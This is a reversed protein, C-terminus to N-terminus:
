RDKKFMYLSLCLQAKNDDTLTKSEDNGFASGAHIKSFKSEMVRMLKITILM